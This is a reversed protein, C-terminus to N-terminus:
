LAGLGVWCGWSEGLAGPGFCHEALVGALSALTLGNAAAAEPALAARWLRLLMRLTAWEAVSMADSLLSTCAPGGPVCHLLIASVDPPMLPEPLQQVLVLLAAAAAHPTVHAPLDVGADLAWRVPATAALLQQVHQQQQQTAGTSTGAVSSSSSSSADL